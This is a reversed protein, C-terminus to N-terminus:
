VVLMELHDFMGSMLNPLTNLYNESQEEREKLEM